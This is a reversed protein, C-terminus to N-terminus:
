YCELVLLGPFGDLILNARDPRVDLLASISKRSSSVAKTQLYEGLRYLLFVLVGEPIEGICVAGIGNLTNCFDDKGIGERINGRHEPVAMGQGVHHQGCPQM